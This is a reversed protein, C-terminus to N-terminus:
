VEGERISEYPEERITERIPFFAGLLTIILTVLIVGGGLMLSFTVGEVSKLKPIVLPLEMAALWFGRNDFMIGTALFAGILSGIVSTIGAETLLLRYVNKKKVGMARLMGIEKKRESMIASFLTMVQIMSLVIVLGMMLYSLLQVPFLKKELEQALGKGQVIDVNPLKDEIQHMVFEEMGDQTDIFVTSVVGDPIDLANDDKKALERATDMRMFITEDTATGTPFLTNEIFFEKNFLVVWETQKKDDYHYIFNEGGAKSGIIVDYKDLDWDRIQYTKLIFDNNPDFAVIPYDGGTGCCVASITELYLQPAVQEIEPIEKLADMVEKENVYAKTVIGSVANDGAYAGMGKPVLVLDAGFRGKTAEVSKQMSVVFFYSAFLILATIASSIILLIARSRKRKVSKWAIGGKTRVNM